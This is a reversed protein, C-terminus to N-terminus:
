YLDNLSGSEFAKASKYGAYLNGWSEGTGGGTAINLGLKAVGAVLDAWQQSKALDRAVEAQKKTAELSIKKLRANSEMMQIDQTLDYAAGKTGELLSGASVRLGKAAMEVTNSAVMDTFRDMIQNKAYLVQNDIAKMQNDAAIKTNDAQQNIIRHRDGFTLLSNFLDTASGITKLVAGQYMNKMAKAKSTGMFDALIKATPDDTTPAYAAMSSTDIANGNGSFDLEALSETTDKAATENPSYVPLSMGYENDAASMPWQTQPKFLKKFAVAFDDM